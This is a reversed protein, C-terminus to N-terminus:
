RVIRVPTATAIFVAVVLGIAVLVDGASYAEPLPHISVWDGLLNLNTSSSMVTYQGITGRQLLAGALEHAVPMRGGNAVLVLLNLASGATVLWIAPLRSVNWLTWAVTAALAAVYVYQAGDVRNLPTLLILERILVVVPIVWPWRFRLRALNGVDGGAILGAVVGVAIAALWLL